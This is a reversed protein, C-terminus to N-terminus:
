TQRRHEPSCYSLKGAKVAESEPVYIGCTACKVVPERNQERERELQERSTRAAENKRQLISLFRAGGWVLAIIGLWFILKGM